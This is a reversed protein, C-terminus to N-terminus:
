PRGIWAAPGRRLARGWDELVLAIALLRRSQPGDRSAAALRRLEESDYNTRTIEVIMPM